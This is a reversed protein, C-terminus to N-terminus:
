RRILIQLAENQNQNKKHPETEGERGTDGRVDGIKKLLVM